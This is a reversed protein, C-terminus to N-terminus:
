AVRQRTRKRGRGTSPKLKIKRGIQLANIHAWPPFQLPITFAAAERLDLPSTVVLQFRPERKSHAHNQPTIHQHVKPTEGCLLTVRPYILM